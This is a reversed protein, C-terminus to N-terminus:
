FELRLGLLGIFSRRTDTEADPGPDLWSLELGLSVGEIIGVEAGLVLNRDRQEDCDLCQGFSISYAFAGHGIAAGVNYFHRVTGGVREAAAAGALELDGHELRLGAILGRVSRRGQGANLHGTLGGVM